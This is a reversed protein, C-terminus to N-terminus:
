ASCTMVASLASPKRNCKQNNEGFSELSEDFIKV